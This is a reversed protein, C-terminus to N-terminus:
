RHFTFSAADLTVSGPCLFSGQVKKGTYPGGTYERTAGERGLAVRTAEYGCAFGFKRAVIRVVDATAAGRADDFAITTDRAFSFDISGSCDLDVDDADIRVNGPPVASVPVDLARCTSKGETLVIDVYSGAEADGPAATAAPVPMLLAAVAAAALLQLSHRHGM